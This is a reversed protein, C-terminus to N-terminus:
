CRLRRPGSSRRRGRTSVTAMGSDRSVFMSLGCSGPLADVAPRVNDRVFATGEDLRNLDAHITTARVFM